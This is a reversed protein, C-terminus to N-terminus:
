AASDAPASPAPSSAVQAAVMADLTVGPRGKSRTGAILKQLDAGRPIRGAKWRYVSVRPVGLRKALAGATIGERELYQSVTM